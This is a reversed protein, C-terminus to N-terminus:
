RVVPHGGSTWALIGGDVEAVDRFGLQEMLAAAQESRNGSRCYLLYPQDPDLEALREAFDPQYFDLMTAGEVHGEAFEDPTRVDLIVLDEPPDAQIASGDAASVLRVGPGVEALSGAEEAAADAVAGGIEEFESDGSCAAILLGCLVSLIILRLVMSVRSPAASRRIGM